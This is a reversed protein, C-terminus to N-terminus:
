NFLFLLCRIFVFMPDITFEGKHFTGDYYGVNRSFKDPSSPNSSNAKPSSDHEDTESSKNINESNQQTM